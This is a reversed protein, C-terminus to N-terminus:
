ATMTQIELEGGLAVILNAVDRYGRLRRMRPSHAKISSAVWRKIMDKKTSKPQKWNKVRNTKERVVSFLSEIMNTTSLSQRLGKPLRLRHVTLLEDGAEALSSECEQSIGALWHTFSALEAVAEEFSVLNMLKKMRWAIQKHYKQPAYKKLNRLKHLSCRQIILRDGFVDVLGKRLAKSGDIVAFLRACRLTFKRELISALLDKVVDSNETDGERIGIPIKQLTDTIGMAVVVARGAFEIGDIAIGVFRYMSLDAHNIDDLDKQSARVFARSVSSKKVSLKQSYASILDEYKRTTAGLMMRAAMSRDLLDQDRLKALTTLPVEGDASHVRPRIFPYKAGDLVLSSKESGGRHCLEDHKRAFARGCLAEVEQELLEVGLSLAAQKSRELLMDEIARSTLANAVCHRQRFSNITEIKKM